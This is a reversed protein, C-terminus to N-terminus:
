YRVSHNSVSSVSGNRVQIRPRYNSSTDDHFPDSFLNRAANGNPSHDVLKFQVGDPRVVFVNNIDINSKFSMDTRSSCYDKRTNKSVMSNLTERVGEFGQMRVQQRAFDVQAKQFNM